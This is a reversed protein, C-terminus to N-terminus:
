YDGQGPVKSKRDAEYLGYISYTPSRYDSYADGNTHAMAMQALSPLPPPSPVRPPKDDARKRTIPKARTPAPPPPAVVRTSPLSAMSQFDTLMLNGLRIGADIPSGIQSHRRNQSFPRSRRRDGALTISDDPYLTGQPSSPPPPPSALGLASTLARTDRERREDSKTVPSLPPLVFASDAFSKGTNGTNGSGLPQTNTSLASVSTSTRLASAPTYSPKVRARNGLSTSATLGQKPLPAPDGIVYSDQGIFDGLFAVSQRATKSYRRNAGKSNSRQLVPQGDATLPSATGGFALGIGGYGTSQPSNPYISMSMASVRNAARTFASQIQSQLPTPQPPQLTDTATAGYGTFPYATKEDLPVSVRKLAPKLEPEKTVAPEVPTFQPQSYQTWPWLVARASNRDRGGFLSEEDADVKREAYADQLIPLSPTPHSRKRPRRCMCIIITTVLVTFFSGVSILAIATPSLHGSTHNRTPPASSTELPGTSLSTETAAPSVSSPILFANTPLPPFGSTVTATPAVVPLIGTHVSLTSGATNAPILTIGADPAPNPVANVDVDTTPKKFQAQHNTDKPRAKVTHAKSKYYKSHSQTHKSDNEKERSPREVLDVSHDQRYKRRKTVKKYKDRHKVADHYQDNHPAM